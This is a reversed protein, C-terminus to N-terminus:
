PYYARPHNQGAAIGTHLESRRNPYSQVSKLRMRPSFADLCRIAITKSSKKAHRLNFSHLKSNEYTNPPDLRAPSPRRVEPFLKETLSEKLGNLENLEILTENPPHELRGTLIVAILLRYDLCAMLTRSTEHSTSGYISALSISIYGDPRDENMQVYPWISRPNPHVGFDIAADYAQGIWDATSATAWSRTQIRKAADKVASTFKSRCLRLAEPTHNREM